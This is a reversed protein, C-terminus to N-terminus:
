EEQLSEILRLYERQAEWVMNSILNNFPENDGNNSAQLAAIHEGQVIPPIITIPYGAQMLALNMLLRAARGNGDIFPHITALRIHLWAAFLVPHLTDKQQPFTLNKAAKCTPSRM